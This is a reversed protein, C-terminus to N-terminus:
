ITVPQGNLPWHLPDADPFIYQTTQRTHILLRVTEHGHYNRGGQANNFGRLCVASLAIM